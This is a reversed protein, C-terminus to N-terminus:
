NLRHGPGYNLEQRVADTLSLQLCGTHGSGIVSLSLLYPENLMPGLTSSHFSAFHSNIRLTEEQKTKELLKFLYKIVKQVWGVVTQSIAVFTIEDACLFLLFFSGM